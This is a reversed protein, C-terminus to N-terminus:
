IQEAAPHRPLIGIYKFKCYRCSRRAHTYFERIIDRKEEIEEGNLIFREVGTSKGNPNKVKINYVSSGFEYRVAYEKWAPDIAPKISLIGGEM